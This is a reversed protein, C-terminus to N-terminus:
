IYNKKLKILKTILHSRKIPVFFISSFELHDYSKKVNSLNKMDWTRHNNETTKVSQIM